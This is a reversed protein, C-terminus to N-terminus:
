LSLANELDDIIDKVNEIGVSLRILDDTVGAKERDEGILQSHTTSAPHIALSKSDGVNALHSIMKLKNIFEAGREVESKEKTKKIGFVVMGGAGNSLYKKVLKKEKRDRALGAYRVWSVNKHKKLFKAVELANKSHERMRLHLTELGQLFFWANDPSLCAGLDRLLTARMRVIYALNNQEGLDYAYRLGHYGPDPETLLPFKKNQWNFNGSDLVVGGLVTGHGSIWKTLSHIVIDAGYEIPRLLYPTCFTNDVILPISANKAIKSFEEIDCIDLSPNSISECFICKTKENVAGKIGDIDSIDFFKTKIGFKLLLGKFLAHTGGYLNSISIIEDGVSAINIISYFIASTGSALALAGRAGELLRLREELISQTPNSIRSYIDGTEKLSFLDAAQKTDNFVYSTTRYLPVARARSIKDVVQGGHVCNSEIKM